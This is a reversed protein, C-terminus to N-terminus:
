AETQLERILHPLQSLKTKLLFARAGAALALEHMAPDNHHTVVVVVADPHRRVLERTASIGDMVPMEIDMLVLDPRHEEFADLGEAGNGAERIEPIGAGVLSRLLSRMKEHDDVILCSAISTAASAMGGMIGAFGAEHLEPVM